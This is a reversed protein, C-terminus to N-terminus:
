RGPLEHAGVPSLELICRTGDASEVELVPGAGEPAPVSHIAVAHHVGRSLHDRPGSSFALWVSREKNRVDASVGDFPKNETEVRYGIDTDPGVVRLVAHAGRNAKTFEALFSIWRDPPILETRRQQFLTQSDGM